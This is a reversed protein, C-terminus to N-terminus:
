KFKKNTIITQLLETEMHVFLEIEMALTPFLIIIKGRPRDILSNFNTINDSTESASIYDTASSSSSSGNM